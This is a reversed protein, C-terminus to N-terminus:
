EPQKLKYEINLINVVDKITFGMSDIDDLVVNCVEMATELRGILDVAVHFYNDIWADRDTKTKIKMADFQAAYTAAIYRKQAKRGNDLTSKLRLIRVRMTTIRTRYAANKLKVQALKDQTNSVVERYIDSNKLRKTQLNSAEEIYEESRDLKKVAHRVFARFETVRPDKKLREELGIMKM